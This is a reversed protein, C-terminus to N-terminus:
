FGCVMSRDGGGCTGNGATDYVEYLFIEAPDLVLFLGCQMGRRISQGGSHQAARELCWGLSVM